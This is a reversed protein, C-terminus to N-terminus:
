LSYRQGDDPVSLPGTFIASADAYLNDASAYRASHVLVLAGVGAQAAM